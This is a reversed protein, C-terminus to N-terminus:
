EVMMVNLIFYLKGQREEQRIELDGKYKRAVNVINKLGYGHGKENKTTEPLGDEGIYIRDSIRNKINIIFVKDRRVSTISIEPEPLGASAEFANQLANNMIVSIDFANVEFGQPYRFDSNFSIGNKECSGAFESLVVDTIPNGSRVREQLGDFNGQLEGLYEKLEATNDTEALGKIVSLHNGMDHRMSRIDEYLEEIRVMHRRMDRIERELAKGAYADDQKERIQQYFIIIILISLYSMICFLIRYLNGPINSTKSGNRICEMWLLFYSNMIPRVLLLSGAPTLLMILERWTLNDKKHKYYKHLIRIAFYLLILSVGFQVLEWVVLEIYIAAPSKSFLETRSILENEFSGIETFMEFPLWRILLFVACLFIKQEGNRKGDLYWAAIVPLIVALAMSLKGFGPLIDIYRGAITFAWFLFAALYASKKKIVFPKLWYGYLFSALAFYIETVAYMYATIYGATEDMM